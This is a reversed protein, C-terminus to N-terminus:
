RRLKFETLIKYRLKIVQMVSGYDYDGITCLSFISIHGARTCFTYLAFCIEGCFGFCQEMQYSTTKTSFIWTNKLRANQNILFLSNDIAYEGM